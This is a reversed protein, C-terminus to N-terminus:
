IHLAEYQRRALALSRGSPTTTASEVPEITERIQAVTAPNAPFTVVSVDFLKLERITRLEYNDTWDQNVARFAFSMEDMDGGSLEFRMRITRSQGLAPGAQSPIPEGFAARPIVAFQEDPSATVQFPSGTLLSALLASYPQAPLLLALLPIILLPALAPAILRFLTAKM